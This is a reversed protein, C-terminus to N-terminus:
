SPQPAVVVDMPRLWVPHVKVDLAGGRLMCSLESSQGGAGGPDGGHAAVDRSERVEKASFELYTM